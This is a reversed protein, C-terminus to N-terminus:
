LKVKEALEALREASQSLADSVGRLAGSQELTRLTTAEVEALQEEILSVARHQVAMQNSVSDMLQRATTTGQATATSSDLVTNLQNAYQKADSASKDLSTVAKGVDNDIGHAIAHIEQTAEGTRRALNRVEGAVVAFGRGHEGARAAEIAANLALLNTQASIESITNAIASISGVSRRLGQTTGIASQMEAKMVEFQEVIREISKANAAVSDAMQQVHAVANDLHKGSENTASRVNVTGAKIQDVSGAMREECDSIESAIHAVHGAHAALALDNQQNPSGATAASGITRQIEIISGALQRSFLLSLVAAVVVSAAVVISLLIIVRKSIGVAEQVRDTLQKQEELFITNSLEEIRTIKDSIAKTEELAKATDRAKAARIITMRTSTVEKNLAVLETVLPHGALTSELIQLSEDLSSAARIAAVAEHRIDEPTTASVLRAQARDIGAVSLRAEAAVAARKHAKGVADQISTNLYLIAIGGVVGVVVTGM